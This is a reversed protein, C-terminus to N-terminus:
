TIIIMIELYKLDNDIHGNKHAFHYADQSNTKHARAARDEQKLCINMDPGQGILCQMQPLKQEQLEKTSTEEFSTLKDNNQNPCTMEINHDLM